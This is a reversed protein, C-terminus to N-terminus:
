AGTLKLDALRYRTTLREGALDTCAPNVVDGRAMRLMMDVRQRLQAPHADTGDIKIALLEATLEMREVTWGEDHASAAEARAPSLIALWSDWIAATRRERSERGIM